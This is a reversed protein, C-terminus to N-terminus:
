NKAWKGPCVIFKETINKTQDQSPPGLPFNLFTAYWEENRGQQITNPSLLFNETDSRIEELHGQTSASTYNINGISLYM